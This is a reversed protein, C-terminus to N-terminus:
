LPTAGLFRHLHETPASRQTILTTNSTTQSAIGARLLARDLPQLMLFIALKAV